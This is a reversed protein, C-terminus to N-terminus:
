GWDALLMGLDSGGVVGDDDLDAATGALGWASLLAGLDAGDVTGDQTIDALRWRCATGDIRVDDVAAEVLSGADLDRARFRIRFPGPAPLFEGLTFRAEVWAAASVAVTEIPSWVIGDQTWEVPMSDANPAAGLNNTYWRWYVLVSSLDSGDLMPSVLTTTGGDVDAAGSGSGAAAQGTVWCRTGIPTHDDEPQAVTGNPDVRVWQGAVADDGPSGAAWETVGEFADEYVTTSVQARAIFRAEPAGRPLTVAGDPGIAEFYYQVTRACPTPPLAAAYVGDDGDLEVVEFEGGSGQRVRLRVSSVGQGTPTVRVSVPTPQLPVVTQPMESVPQLVAPGLLGEMMALAAAMNEQANPVIESAPMVFGYSGTDRVEITLSTVGASGYTWDVSGGSAPYITTYIPGAQYIQGHAAQVAEQMALGVARHVSDDPCLEDTWAWPWMILQSYSHFDITGVIEPHLQFFAALAAAEPASFASAGRYTPDTPNTSAGQGGWQFGWNRNTDTGFSGDGNPQRNKRWLRDTTWSYQYGDPNVVPVVIVAARDLLAGIRADTDARELLQEALYMTTMPTAWERAHQCSSFLFAPATPAAGRAIRLARIVRGEHSSGVTLVTARTPHEAVLQDMRANVQSLDKFDAFWDGAVGGEGAAGGENGDATAAAAALRTAEADLRAQLDAILVEFPVGSAELAQRQAPSVRMDFRGLGVGHSWVDDTLSLAAMLQRTSEVQVRVVSHGDYRVPGDGAAGAASMPAGLALLVGVFLGLAHRSPM